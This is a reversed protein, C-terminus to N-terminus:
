FIYDCGCDDSGFHCWPCGTIPREDPDEADMADDVVSLMHVIYEPAFRSSYEHDMLAGYVHLAETFSEGRLTVIDDGRDSASALFLVVIINNEINATMLDIETIIEGNFNQPWNEATVAGATPVAEAPVAVPVPFQIVNDYKCHNLASGKRNAKRVM